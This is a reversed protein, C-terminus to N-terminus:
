LNSIGNIRVENASDIQLEHIFESKNNAIELSEAVDAILGTYDILYKILRITCTINCGQRILEVEHSMGCRNISNRISALNQYNNM